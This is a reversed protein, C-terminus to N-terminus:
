AFYSLGTTDQVGKAALLELWREVEAQHSAM